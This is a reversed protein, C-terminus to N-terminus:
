ARQEVKVETSGHSYHLETGVPFSVLKTRTARGASDVEMVEFVFVNGKVPGHQVVFLDGSKYGDNPFVTHASIVAHAKDNIIPFPNM